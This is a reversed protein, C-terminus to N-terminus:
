PLVLSRDHDSSWAALGDTVLTAAVLRARDPDDPWGAAAALRDSPVAGSRRLEDVLRGRGQRDSGEFRSQGGAVAASGVAPDPEPNGARRWACWSAVPCRDCRPSRKLCVTAGLDLMAQNWAWGAGAPPLDDAASQVERGGLSRGAWRALVRGVNTDVVAVDREFAFALVARATYPGIGPLTLLADLSDPLAGDHRVVVEVACRHLSVARRNYGLGAWMTIVDGVPAVACAAVTPFRELFAAYKPLVRAVQTQQLMLESVLVSWPDRTRRWPLDRRTADSWGLVAPALGPAPSASLAPATPV